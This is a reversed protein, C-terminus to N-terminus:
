SIINEGDFVFMGFAGGSCGGSKLREVYARQVSSRQPLLDYNKNAPPWASGFVRWLEGYGQYVNYLHFDDIFSLINSTPPLFDRHEPYLLWSHCVFVANGTQNFFNYAKRYSDLRKEKTIGDGEPIHINIVHAGKKIEVGAITQPLCSENCYILEFQLRGLRVVVGTLALTIWGFFGSNIGWKGTQDLCVRAWIPLDLLSDYYVDMPWNRRIYLNKMEISFLECLTLALMDNDVNKEQALEDLFDRRGNRTAFLYGQLGNCKREFDEDAAIKEIMEEILARPEDPMKVFDNIERIHNLVLIKDM